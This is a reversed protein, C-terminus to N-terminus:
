FLTYSFFSIKWPFNFSCTTCYLLFTHTTISVQEELADIHNLYVHADGLTHVFDGPQLLITLHILPYIFSHIFKYLSFSSVIGQRFFIKEIVYQKKV